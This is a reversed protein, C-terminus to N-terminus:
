STQIPRVCPKQIRGPVGAGDLTTQLSALVTMVGTIDDGTLQSVGESARGDILTDNVSSGVTTNLGDFWDIMADDIRAKLARVDECLPRVVENSFKVAEPDTIDAM